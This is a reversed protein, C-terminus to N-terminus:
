LKSKGISLTCVVYNTKKFQVQLNENKQERITLCYLMHEVSKLWSCFLLNYCSSCCNKGFPWFIWPKTSRFILCDTLPMVTRILVVKALTIEKYNYDFIYYKCFIMTTCMFQGKKREIDIINPVFFANLFFTCKCTM